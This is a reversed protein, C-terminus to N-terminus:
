NPNRPDSIAGPLITGVMREDQLKDMCGAYGAVDLLSDNHDPSFSLRAIKVQMMCLAVDEPTIAVNVRLKRALTGQWLMAIQAFNALKDGYEQQRNGNILNEAQHLLPIKEAAPKANLFEDTSVSVIKASTKKTKQM